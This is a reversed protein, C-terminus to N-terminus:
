RRVTAASSPFADPIQRLYDDVQVHSVGTGVTSEGKGSSKRTTAARESGYPAPRWPGNSEVAPARERVMARRRKGAERDVSARAAVRAGSAATARAPERQAKLARKDGENRYVWPAVAHSDKWLGIKERRARALASSRPIRWRRTKPGLWAREIASAVRMAPRRGNNVRM